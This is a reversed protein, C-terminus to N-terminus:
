ENVKVKRHSQKLSVRRTEQTEDQNYKWTFLTVFEPPLSLRRPWGEKRSDSLGLKCATYVYNTAHAEVSVVVEVNFEACSYVNMQARQGVLNPKWRVFSHEGKIEKRFFDKKKCWWNANTHCFCTGWTM